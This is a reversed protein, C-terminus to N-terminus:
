YYDIVWRYVILETAEVCRWASHMGAVSLYYIFAFSRLFDLDIELFFDTFLLREYDGIVLSKIFFILIKSFFSISFSLLYLLAFFSFFIM